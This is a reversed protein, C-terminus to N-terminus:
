LRIKVTLRDKSTVMEVVYIGSPLELSLRDASTDSHATQCGLTDYVNVELKGSAALDTVTLVSGTVSWEIGSMVGEDALGYTLFFRGAASGHVTVETDEGIPTLSLDSKDLLMLGSEEGIGSFRLRTDTDDDAIVGIEVGEADQATQISLAKGHGVTYVTAPVDLERNDIAEVGPLGISDAEADITLMAATSPIGECEAVVRIRLGSDSRTTGTQGERSDYRRMMTEDYELNVEKVKKDEKTKVFFGQMPAVITPDEQLESGSPDAAVFDGNGDSGGSIQGGGAVIWYKSDLIDKNKELFKKIDMYTMFPNGVLFYNGEGATRASISGHTPNLRYLSDSREMGTKHGHHSGDQTFYFYVEDSKPLRFLVKEGDAPKGDDMLSVDTKISFGNGGGYLEEVDNYVHSWTTKVAVNRYVDLGPKDIEFVKAKGKDWSRQYVAPKFRHNLKLSNDFTMDTFLEGKERAGNSPLYFDGSYVEQLPTSLTQWRSHDVEIDVWAKKYTLEQQNMITGGPKFHIEYCTNVYWPRCRVDPDGQVNEALTMAAMDYQINKTAGVVSQWHYDSYAADEGADPNEPWEYKKGLEDEFTITKEPSYLYPSEMGGKIVVNTFDLPAYSLINSNVTKGGDTGDTVYHKHDGAAKNSFLEDADVRSWNADNNWNLNEEGTWVLYKPVIKLTLLDQGTCVADSKNADGVKEKYEFRLRYYYGEKLRFDEYFQMTFFKRPAPDDKSIKAQLNTLEGVWPLEGTGEDDDDITGLNAYEPDNSQVLIICGSTENGESDMQSSMGLATVNEDPSSAHWVPVEITKMKFGDTKEERIQDLGIRLPVDAMYEPYEIGSFGHRLIPAKIGVIVDIQSPQTCVMVNEPVDDDSLPIPIAVLNIEVEKKDDPITVPHVVFSRQCLMLLPMGCEEDIETSAKDILDLMWQKLMVKGDEKKSDPTVGETDKYNPYKSRFTQLAEELLHDKAGDNYKKFEELTGYFWDFLANKQLDVVGGDESIGTVNAQIIPSTNECIVMRGKVTEVVGEIKVISSPTITMECKATCDDEMAFFEAVGNAPSYDSSTKLVLYYDKGPVLANEDSDNLVNVFVILREGTEVDTYQYATGPVPNLNPTTYDSNASYRNKFTISGYENGGVAVLSEKFISDFDSDDAGAIKEDYVEKDIFAYYITVDSAVDADSTAEAQGAVELLSDFPSAISIRVEDKGCVPTLQRSEVTPSEVYARIDDIAYDAGQSSKTNNDLEVEYHDIYNALEGPLFDSQRPIFSYYINLWEGRKDVNTATASTAGKNAGSPVYGTIFQHLTIRAGDGLGLEKYNSINKEVEDNLVAVFNFALNATEINASFEAMWASVHITSGPCLSKINLRAAVGPDTAANVYYFYGQKMGDVAARARTDPQTQLSRLTRYYLRDFLGTEEGDANKSWKKAAEYYPVQSSHTALMYMNYDHRQDYGFSYDSQEWPLPWKFYAKDMGGATQGSINVLKEKLTSDELDHAKIYEDFDIHTSPMKLPGGYNEDLYEIRAHKFENKTYLDEETLMSAGQKPLFTIEYEMVVLDEQTGFIKIVQGNDDKGIIQVIYSGEKPNDCELMRYFKKGADGTLYSVGDIVRSGQGTFEEGFKFNVNSVEAKTMADLVKIDMECVRAYKNEELKYYYNSRGATNEKPAPNSLRIQFPVGARASVIRRNRKLYAKNSEISGSLQDALVKGNRVRFIHRMAILPANIVRNAKDLHKDIDYNQSFDAAILYEDEGEEFPLDLQNEKNDYPNRPCFFTAVTGPLRSGINNTLYELNNDAVYLGPTKNNSWGELTPFENLEKTLTLPLWCVDKDDIDTSGFCNIFRFNAKTYSGDENEEVFNNAYKMHRIFKKTDKTDEPYYLKCDVVVNRLTSTSKPSTPYNRNEFWGAVAGNNYKTSPIANKNGVVGGVYVNELDMVNDASKNDSKGLIGGAAQENDVRTGFVTAETKINKFSMKGGSHYGILGINELGEIHCTKDIIINEIRVGDDACGIIGVNDTTRIITLNKIKHGNGNFFGSYATDKTEGLMPLTPYGSFDIDDTLEFYVNRNTLRNIELVTEIYEAASGASYHLLYPYEPLVNIYGTIMTPTSVDRWGLVKLPEEPHWCKDNADINGYCNKYKFNGKVSYGESDSVIFEVTNGGKRHRIYKKWESTSEPRNLECNVVVNRLVSTERVPFNATENEFWGCIAGNNSGKNPDGVVGGIYVNTLYMINDTTKTDGDGCFGLIAGAAHEGNGTGRVTAETKVNKVTIYGNVLRGVLGVHSVGEFMCSEDIKLNEIRIGDGGWCVLGSESTTRQITLNKITHGNGNIMGRFANEKTEGILPIDDENEFDLDARISLCIDATDDSNGLNNVVAKYEEVTSVARVNYGSEVAGDSEMPPNESDTWGERQLVTENENTGWCKDNLDIEGYCADFEFNAKTKIHNESNETITAGNQRHRIYKQGNSNEPHNLTGKVVIRYLHSKSMPLKTLQENEFWGILAANRTNANGCNDPNGVVGGIYIDSLNIVNNTDKNKNIGLVGAACQEYNNGPSTGIFTAETKYGSVKMAGGLHEGVLAVYQTGEFRCSEDLKLNEIRIGDAAFGVIGVRARKRKMKLNKITHGMGNLFGSFACASTEGLMPVEDEAYGSFDIDGSLYFYVKADRDTRANIANVAKIYEEANRASYHRTFPYEQPDVITGSEMPPTQSNMWGAERLVSLQENPVKIERSTTFWCLDNPDLKGYCNYFSFIGKHIAGDEDNSVPYENTSHYSRIFKRNVGTDFGTIECDVIVNKLEAPASNGNTQWWGILAANNSSGHNTLVNGIKGGVYCDEILLPTYAGNNCYGILGTATQETPTAATGYVTAEAHINRLTLSGKSHQGIVGGVHSKAVFKCTPDIVVNEVVTNSTTQCILGANDGNKEYILNSITHGNGNFVGYFSNIMPVDKGSFDLNATLEVFHPKSTESNVKNVMAMYEDPSNVMIKDINMSQGGFYGARDTIQIQSPDNLFDLLEYERKIGDEWDPKYTLRGGTKYNYWHSFNEHYNTVGSMGYYPYLMVMDGPMAYVIHEITHTRQRKQGPDLDYKSDTSNIYSFDPFEIEINKEQLTNKDDDTIESWGSPLNRDDVVGRSPVFSFDRLDKLHDTVLHTRDLMTSSYPMGRGVKIVDFGTMGMPHFNDEGSEFRRNNNTTVVEFRLKSPMMGDVELKAVPIAESYETTYPGRFLFFAYFLTKWNSEDATGKVEMMTPQAHPYTSNDYRRIMVFIDEDKTPDLIGDMVDVELYAGEKWGGAVDESRGSFYMLKNNTGALNSLPYSAHVHNARLNKIISFTDGHFGQIEQPDQAQAVTYVWVLMLSVLLRIGCAITNQLYKNSM